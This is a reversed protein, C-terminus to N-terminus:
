TKWYKILWNGYALYIVNESPISIVPKSLESPYYIYGNTLGTDVTLWTNGGDISMSTALTNSFSDYGYQNVGAAIVLKGSPSSNLTTIWYQFETLFNWEIGNQTAAFSGRRIESNQIAYLTSDRAVIFEGNGDAHVLQWSEGGDSTLFLKYKYSCDLIYNDCEPNPNREYLNALGHSVDTFQIGSTAYEHYPLSLTEKWTVGGDTTKLFKIGSDKDNIEERTSVGVVGNMVSTFYASRVKLVQDNSEVKILEWVDGGNKTRVLNGDCVTFGNLSDVFVINFSPCSNIVAKWSMGGDETKFLETGRNIFGSNEDLFYLSNINKNLIPLKLVQSRWGEFTTINLNWPEIVTVLGYSVLKGDASGVKYVLEDRYDFDPGPSYFITAHEALYAEGKKPGIQISVELDSRDVGCIWDNDLIKLTITSDPNVLVRDEVSYLGCPIEDTSKIISVTFTESKIVNNSKILSVIFEDKGQIFLFDPEYKYVLPKLETLKGHIPNQTIEFTGDIFAEKILSKLDIITSTGPQIFFDTSNFVVQKNPKLSDEEFQDCSSTLLLSTVVLFKCCSAFYTRSNM